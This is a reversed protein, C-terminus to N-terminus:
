LGLQLCGAGTDLLDPSACAQLHGVVEVGKYQLHTICSEVGLPLVGGGWLSGMCDNRGGWWTFSLVSMMKSTPSSCCSFEHVASSRSHVPWPHPARSQEKRRKGELGSRCLAKVGAEEGAPQLAGVWLPM